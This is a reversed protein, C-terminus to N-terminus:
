SATQLTQGGLALAFVGRLGAPKLSGPEQALICWPDFHIAPPEPRKATGELIEHRPFLPDLGRSYVHISAAQSLGAAAGQLLPGFSTGLPGRSPM